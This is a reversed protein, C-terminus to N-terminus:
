EDRSVDASPSAEESLEPPECKVAVEEEHEETKLKLKKKPPNKLTGLREKVKYELTSHPIGYVTQAKSVSMKGNMVVGIAEELNEMNYQRYRGRKKRPQKFSSDVEPDSTSYPQGSIAREAESGLCEGAEDHLGGMSGRRSHKPFISHLKKGLADESYSSMLLGYGHLSSNHSSWSLDMGRVQPIKLGVPPSHGLDTKHQLSKLAAPSRVPVVSTESLDSLGKHDIGAANPPPKSLNFPPKTWSENRLLPSPLPKPKLLGLPETQRETANRGPLNQESHTFLKLLSPHNDFEGIGDDRSSWPPPQDDADRSSYDRRPSIGKVLPAAPTRVSVAGRNRNKKTSLDLVGDQECVIIDPRKVTLDLPAEQEAMLLQSLVPNRASTLGALAPAAPAAPAPTQSRTTLLSQDSTGNPQPTGQASSTKSTYEAAFQRIMRQMIERAVVPIDPDSFSPIDKRHLVANLFEEAERELNNINFQDKIFSLPRAVSGLSDNNLGLLHEKVKERRLCCFLCNEDFSWDSVGEPQCDKFLRLDEILRSGFLGELISEFGVCQILKYRWSDLDQRIGRREIMCQQRKCLSAM